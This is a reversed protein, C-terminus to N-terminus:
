LFLCFRESVCFLERLLASRGTERTNILVIPSTAFFAVTLIHTTEASRYFHVLQSVCESLSGVTLRVMHLPQLATSTGPTVEVTRMLRSSKEWSQQRAGLQCFLRHVAEPGWAWRTTWVQRVQPM